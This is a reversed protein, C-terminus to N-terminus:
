SQGKEKKIRRLASTAWYRLNKNEKVLARNLADEAVKGLDGLIEASNKRVAWQEHELAQVLPAIAPEGIAVLANRCEEVLEQDDDVLLEVLGGIAEVSKMKGLAKAAYIRRAGGEPGLCASIEDMPPNELKVIVDVIWDNIDHREKGLAEILAKLGRPDGIKGLAMASYKRVWDNVDTNLADILHPVATSDGIASLGFAAFFRMERNRDNRLVNILPAVAKPGIDAIVKEIWYRIDPNSDNLSKVLIEIHNIGLKRLSDASTKRVMWSRDKLSTILPFVVRKDDCDGLANSAFIRIEPNQDSLAEILPEVADGGMAALVRTTWFRVNESPHSIASKLHPIAPLGIRQLSSAASKRVNWSQDALTAILPKISAATGFKGLMQAAAGRVVPKEHGLLQILKLIAGDGMKIVIEEIDFYMNHKEDGLLAFLTPLAQPGIDALIQTAMTKVEPRPDRLSRALHEIAKGGIKGLAEAANKRVTWYSDNLAEILPKIAREDGSEGLARAAYFRLRKDKSRLFKILPLIAQDGMRGLVVTTWCVKNEDNSKLAEGLYKVTKKGMKSLSDAIHNCVTWPADAMVDILPEIVRDDDVESLTEASITAVDRDPNRLAKVLVPIAEGGINGLTKISWYKVDPNKSSLGDSLPQVAEAGFKSLAESAKRRVVWSENAFAEMLQRVTVDAGPRVSYDPDHKGEDMARTIKDFYNEMRSEGPYLRSSVITM